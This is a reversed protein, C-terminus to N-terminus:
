LCTYGLKGLLHRLAGSCRHRVTLLQTGMHRLGRLVQLLAKIAEFLLHTASCPTSIGQPDTDYALHSRLPGGTSSCLLAVLCLQPCVLLCLCQHQLQPLQQQVLLPTHCRPLGCISHVCGPTPACVRRGLCALRSCLGRQAPQRTVVPVHPLLHLGDLAHNVLLEFGGRTLALPLALLVRHHWHIISPVFM